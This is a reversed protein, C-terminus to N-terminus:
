GGGKGEMVFIFLCSWPVSLLSTVNKSWPREACRTLSTINKFWPGETSQALDAISMINSSGRIGKNVRGSSLRLLGIGTDEIHVQSNNTQRNLNSEKAYGKEYVDLSPVLPFFGLGIRTDEICM